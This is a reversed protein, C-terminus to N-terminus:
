YANLVDIIQQVEEDTLIPNLPISVVSQHIRESIPCPNFNFPKLAQQLHPAVPYHVHSEVGKSTLYKIFEDRHEVRVVFVYFVHNESGNIKPLQIKSNKISSTYRDAIDRRRQNDADLHKLKVRLWSAQVEDLRSNAGISEYCYKTRSGYNGLVRVQEALQMDNTTIAGSDGFAGLNKSPYFSFAAADGLNGAKTGFSNSAGHAQAADEILLMNHSRCFDKVPPTDALQGYLHVVIVAKVKPSYSHEIGSLDINFSSEDPSVLVPVLGAKIVSFITAIFTNSPVLVRDGKKLRGLEIYGQLILTLADLGSATGICYRTGCYAAFEEEFAEVETGNIYHGTEFVETLSAQLEEEFRQNLKKLDLFPIM